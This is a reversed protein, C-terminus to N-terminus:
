SMNFFYTLVIRGDQANHGFGGVPEACHFLRSDYILARNQKGQVRYYETWKSRDNSDRQLEEHNSLETHLRGQKKHEWFSTGSGEPWVESLYILCAYQSMVTDPHIQNPAPKQASSTIRAFCTVGEIKEGFMFNMREAMYNSFWDLKCIGPYTVGDWQSVIDSFGDEQVGSLMKQPNLFFDDLVVVHPKM